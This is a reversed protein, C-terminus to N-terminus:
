VNIHLVRSYCIIKVVIRIQYIESNVMIRIKTGSLINKWMSAGFMATCLKHIHYIYCNRRLVSRPVIFKSWFFCSPTTCQNVLCNPQNCATMSQTHAHKAADLSVSIIKVPAQVISIVDYVNYVTYSMAM